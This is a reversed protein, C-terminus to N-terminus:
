KATFAPDTRDVMRVGNSRASREYAIANATGAKSMINAKSIKQHPRLVYTSRGGSPLTNESTPKTTTSAMLSLPPALCPACQNSQALAFCLEDTTSSTFPSIRTRTNSSGVGSKQDRKSWCDEFHTKWALSRSPRTGQNKLIVMWGSWICTQSDSVWGRPWHQHDTVPKTVFM